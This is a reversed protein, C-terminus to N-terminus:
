PKRKLEQTERALELLLTELEREYATSDMQAKRGRLQEIRTELQLKKEQLARVAPDDSVAVTTTSFVFRRALSSDSVRAHETLLRNTSEYERRVETTTFAFAELLSLAGDKDTDAAGGTFAQALWHGFRSENREMGSKTATIVLRNAGAIKDVFGGSASAAVVLAVPREGLTALLRSLDTATLDPGPLNLRPEGQDSGHGIYVVLVPDTPAAQGAIRAVEQEVREKTARGAAPDAEQEALWTIRDAPIRYKELAGVITRAQTTFVQTYKPEGGIGSVILVHPATAQAAHGAAALALLGGLGFRIPRSM